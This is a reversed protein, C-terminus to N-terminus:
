ALVPKQDRSATYVLGVARLLHEVPDGSTPESCAGDAGAIDIILDLSQGIAALAQLAAHQQESWGTADPGDARTIWLLEDSAGRYRDVVHRVDKPDDPSWTDM